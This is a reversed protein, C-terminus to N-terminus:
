LIECLYYSFWLFANVQLLTHKSVALLELFNATGVQLQFPDTQQYDFCQLM